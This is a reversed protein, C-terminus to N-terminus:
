PARLAGKIVAISDPVAKTLRILKLKTWYGRLLGYATIGTTVLVSATSILGSDTVYNILGLVDHKGILAAVTTLGTIILTLQRLFTAILTAWTQDTTVIQNEMDM